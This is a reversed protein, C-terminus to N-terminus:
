EAARGASGTRVSEALREFLGIREEIMAIGARWFAPTEIDFGAKRTVEVASASGSAALLERYRAPFSPGERRYLSYLGLGFLQGFAYPFNYYALDQSYYHGKVAWMYPHLEREDLADGYTERQAEVMMACLEGPALEGGPRREFLRKEFLFRSLIDVIVQTANQLFDELITIQHEPAAVSLAGSYVVSESFISATEALTMPYQRDVAQADKLIEHHYAHGLEHAITAVSGFDGAYNALVRSQKSLPFSICYAGGVKGERARADIWGSDFARRAFSGLDESFSSFREIVFSRARGFPWTEVSTGVPAFLDFFALKPLGLARAKAGLYRRFLPLSETMVGILSDLTKRTIRSQLTSRELTSEYGRRGNLTTSFGKVGNLAFAIPIEMTRWAEIEKRFAKERVARDPDFALTRLQVVTKREGSREDWQASLNSSVAEQLRTWADAGARSLDAALNEEAPAMQHRQLELQERLFFAHSALSPSSALIEPLRDAVRSLANRFLVTANKLPLGAEELLNLERQSSEDRTQTSFRAYAYAFLEEFLDATAGYAELCDRIWASPEKERKGEDGVTALLGSTLERLSAKAERYTSSDAGPFISDLDWLPLAAQENDREM